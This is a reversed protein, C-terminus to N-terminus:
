ASRAAIVGACVRVPCPLPTHWLPSLCTHARRPACCLCTWGCRTRFPCPPRSQRAHRAHSLTPATFPRVRAAVRLAPATSRPTRLPGSAKGWRQLLAPWVLTLGVCRDRAVRARAAADIGLRAGRRRGSHAPLRSHAVHLATRAQVPLLQPAEAARTMPEFAVRAVAPMGYPLARGGALSWPSRLMARPAAHARSARQCGRQYCHFVILLAM